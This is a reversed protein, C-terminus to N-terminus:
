PLDAFLEAMQKQSKFYQLETYERPRRDDALTYSNAICVRAEHADFDTSVTNNKDNTETPSAHIFRVDNHAIIAIGLKAAQIIASENFKDDSAKVRRIGIYFGIAM